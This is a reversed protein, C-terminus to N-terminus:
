NIKFVAGDSKLSPDIGVVTHGKSSLFRSLLASTGCGIELIKQPTSGIEPRLRLMWAYSAHVAILNGSKDDSVILSPDMALTFSCLFLSLLALVGM